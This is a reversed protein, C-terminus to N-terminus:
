ENDKIVRAPSGYAVMNEPMDKTVLSHAGIITNDGITIRPLITANEFICCKKGITVGSSMAVNHSIFSYDGVKCHHSVMSYFNVRIHKGLKATSSILAFNRINVGVLKRTNPLLVSADPSIFNIFRHNPFRKAIRERYVMNLVSIFLGANKEKDIINEIESYKAIPVEIKGNTYISEIQLYEKTPNDDILTPLTKFVHDELIETAGGGAGFIYIKMDNYREKM